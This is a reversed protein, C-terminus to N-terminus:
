AVCFNPTGYTGTISTDYGYLLYFYTILSGLIDQISDRLFITSFFQIKQHLYRVKLYFRVIIIKFSVM